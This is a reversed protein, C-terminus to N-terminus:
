SQTLAEKIPFAFDRALLGVLPALSKLAPNSLAVETNSKAIERIVGIVAGAFAVNSLNKLASPDQKQATKFLQTAVKKAVSLQAKKLLPHLETSLLPKVIRPTIGFVLVDQAGAMITHNISKSDLQALTVLAEGFAQKPSITGTFLKNGIETIPKSNVISLVAATVFLSLAEQEIPALSTMQAILVKSILQYGVCYQISGQYKKFGTSLYNQSAQKFAQLTKTGKEVSASYWTVNYDTLEKPTNKIWLEVVKQANQTKQFGLYHPKSALREAIHAKQDATLDGRAIRETIATLMPNPIGEPHLDIALQQLHEYDEVTQLTPSYENLLKFLRLHPGKTSRDITSQTKPQVTPIPATTKTHQTVKTSALPKTQTNPHTNEKKPLNSPKQSKVQNTKRTGFRGQQEKIDGLPKRKPSRAPRPTTSRIKEKAM